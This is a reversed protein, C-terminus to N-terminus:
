DDCAEAGLQEKIEEGAVRRKRGPRVPPPYSDSLPFFQTGLQFVRNPKECTAVRGLIERRFRRIMEVVEVYTEDDCSFVLTSLNREENTYRDLATNAIKLNQQIYHNVETSYSESGSTVFGKTQEYFGTTDNKKILSLRELLAVSTKIQSASLPPHVMLGFARADGVYPYIGLLERVVAHHWSSFYEFQDKALSHVNCEKTAVLRELYLRSESHTKAQNFAVMNFFYDKEQETTSFMKAFAKVLRPTLNRKGQLIKNFMSADMSAQEAIYRHSFHWDEAHRLEYFDRLYERYNLYEFINVSM